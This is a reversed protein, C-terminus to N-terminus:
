KLTIRKIRTQNQDLRKRSSKHQHVVLPISKFKILNKGLDSDQLHFSAMQQNWTNRWGHRWTLRECGSILLRYVIFLVSGCVASNSIECTCFEGMMLKRWNCKANEYESRRYHKLWKQVELLCWRFPAVALYVASAAPQFCFCLKSVKFLTQKKLNYGM